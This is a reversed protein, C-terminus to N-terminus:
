SGAAIISKAHAVWSEFISKSAKLEARKADVLRQEYAIRATKYIAVVKSSEQCSADARAVRKEEESPPTGAERSMWRPDLRAVAPSDYYMGNERMCARWDALAKQVRSDRLASSEARATLERPDAPLRPTDGSIKRNTQGLCGDAPVARGSSTRQATGAYVAMEEKTPGHVASAAAVAGASDVSPRPYGKEEATELDLPELLDSEDEAYPNTTRVTDKTWEKFGLSKMCSAAGVDRAINILKIDDISTMYPDTPM